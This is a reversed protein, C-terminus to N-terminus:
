LQNVDVAGQRLVEIADDAMRIVTSPLNGSLDGGDIYFDVQDDFYAQAEQLTNAPPEGPQNASTTILPGIATLLKQLEPHAPIRVALGQVGQRLYVLAAGTPIIVSVAGPWFREVATLYRRKMGLTVLQDINAAILTGPKHERSKLAYVKAVAAENSALGVIGYVTDTPLIGVSGAQLAAVLQAQSLGKFIQM